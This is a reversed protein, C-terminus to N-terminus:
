PERDVLFCEGDEGLARLPVEEGGMLLQFLQAQERGGAVYCGVRHEGADGVAGAEIDESQGLRHQLALCVAGQPHEHAQAARSLATRRAGRREKRASVSRAARASRMILPRRCPLAQSSIANSAASMQPRGATGAGCDMNLYDGM